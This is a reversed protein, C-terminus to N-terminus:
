HARSLTVDSWEVDSICAYVCAYCGVKLLDDATTYQGYLIQVATRSCRVNFHLGHEEESTVLGEKCHPREPECFNEM